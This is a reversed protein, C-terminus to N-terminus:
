SQSQKLKILCLLGITILLLSNTNSVRVGSPSDVGPGVPRCFGRPDMNPLIDIHGGHYPTFFLSDLNIQSNGTEKFSRFYDQWERTNFDIGEETTYCDDVWVVKTKLPIASVPSHAITSVTIFTATTITLLIILKKQNISDRKRRIM